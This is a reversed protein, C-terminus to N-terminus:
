PDCPIFYSLDYYIWYKLNFHPFVQVYGHCICRKSVLIHNNLSHKRNDSCGNTHGVM